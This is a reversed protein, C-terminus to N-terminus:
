LQGPRCGAMIAHIGGPAHRVVESGIGRIRAREVLVTVNGRDGNIGLEEPYLHLIRLVDSM